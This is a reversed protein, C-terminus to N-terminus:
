GIMATPWPKLDMVRAACYAIAPLAGLLWGGDTLVAMLFPLPGWSLDTRGSLRNLLSGIFIMGGVFAVVGFGVMLLLHRAGAEAAALPRRVTPQAQESM